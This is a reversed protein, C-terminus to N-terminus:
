QRPITASDGSDDVLQAYRQLAPEVAEVGEIRRVSDAITLDIPERVQDSDFEQVSRVELDVQENLEQFLDTFTARLSDALVFSGVVFSVGATIAAAIALTRGWRARISRRAILATSGASM